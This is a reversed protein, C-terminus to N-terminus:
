GADRAPALLRKMIASVLRDYWRTFGWAGLAGAALALAVPVPGGPPVPAGLVAGPAAIGLLLLNRVLMAQGMVSGRSGFCRCEAFVGNRVARVVVGAFLALLVSALAFGVRSTGPALLLVAAMGEGAAIAAGVPTAAREPLVALQRISSVFGHFRSASRVKGVFAVAFVGLILARCALLLHGTM